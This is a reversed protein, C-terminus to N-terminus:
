RTGPSSPEASYVPLDIRPPYEIGSGSPGSRIVSGDPRFTVTLGPEYVTISRGEHRAVKKFYEVCDGCMERTVAIPEDPYKAHFKKEGHSAAARGEVGQDSVNDKAKEFKHDIKKGTELVKGTLGEPDFEEGSGSPVVKGTKTAAYTKRAEKKTQEAKPKSLWREAASRATEAAEQEAGTPQIDPRGSARIPRHEVVAPPKVQKMGPRVVQGGVRERSGKAGGGYYVEAPPETPKAPPPPGTTGAKPVASPAPGPPAPEAPAPVASAVAPTAPQRTTPEAVAPAPRPAPVSAPEPAQAPAPARRQAPTHPRSAQGAKVAELGRAVEGNLVDIFIGRPDTIVDALRKMFAELTIREKGRARDFVMRVATQIVAGVRGAVVNTAVRNVIARLLPREISGGIRAAVPGIMRASILDSLPKAAFGMAASLLVDFGIRAWDIESRLGLHLESAQGALEQVGGYAAGLLIGGTGGTGVAVTTAAAAEVLHLGFIARDAGTETGEKYARVKSAAAEGADAAHQLKGYASMIDGAALYQRASGVEASVPDWISLPPPSKFGGLVDSVRSVIPQDQHMQYIFRQAEQNQTILSSVRRTFTFLAERADHANVQHYVQLPYPPLSLTMTYVHQDAGPSGVASQGLGSQPALPSTTRKLAQSITANSVGPPVVASGVSAITDRLGGTRSGRAPPRNVPPTGRKPPPQRVLADGM